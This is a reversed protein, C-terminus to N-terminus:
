KFFGTIKRLTQKRYGTQGFSYESDGNDEAVVTLIAANM